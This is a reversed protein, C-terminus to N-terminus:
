NISYYIIKQNALSCIKYNAGYIQELLIENIIDNKGFALSKGDKIAFVKTAFWFIHNPEHSCVIIIKGSKSITNMVKWILIQNSFDLASTPEDLIMVESNQAIARAILGLQKQGGSLESFNRDKLQLIGVMDMAAYVSKIDAKSFGFVGGFHPKKGMLVVEFLTYNFALNHAQPVYSILKSIQSISLNKFKSGFLSYEDYSANLFGLLSRILTTKGSGNSGMLGLLDGRELEFSIGSLIQNKGYSFNLNGVVIKDLSNQM